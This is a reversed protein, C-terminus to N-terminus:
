ELLFYLNEAETSLPVLPDDKKIFTFPFIHFPTQGCRGQETFFNLFPHRNHNIFFSLGRATKKPSLFAVLVITMKQGAGPGLAAPYTCSVPFINEPSITSLHPFLLPL